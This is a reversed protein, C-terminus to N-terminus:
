TLTESSLLSRGALSNRCAWLAIAVIVLMEALSYGFYWRSSDLTWPVEFTLEYVFWMAYLALFGYRLLVFASLAWVIMRFAFWFADVQGNVFSLVLGFLVIFAAGWVDRKLWLRGLFFLSLTFLSGWLQVFAIRFLLGAFRSPGHWEFASFPGIPPRGQRNLWEQILVYLLQLALGMVAAKLIHAAVLPDRLKGQILRVWSVLVQPCHRRVSPELAVYCVAIFQCISSILDLSFCCDNPKTCRQWM